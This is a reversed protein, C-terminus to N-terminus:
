KPKGNRWERIAGVVKTGFVYSALVCFVEFLGPPMEATGEYAMCRYWVWIMMGLVILLAVRGISVVMKGDKEELFLGGIYKHAWAALTAYIARLTERLTEM